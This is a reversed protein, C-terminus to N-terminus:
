DQPSSVVAPEEVWGFALGVIPLGGILGCMALITIMLWDWGLIRQWMKSMSGRVHVFRRM